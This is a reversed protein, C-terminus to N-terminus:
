PKTPEGFKIEKGISNYQKGPPFMEDIYFEVTIQKNSSFISSDLETFFDHRYDFFSQKIYLYQPDAITLQGNKDIYRVELVRQNKIVYQMKIFETPKFDVMTDKTFKWRLYVMFCALLIFVILGILLHIENRCNTYLKKM